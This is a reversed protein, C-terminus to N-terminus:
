VPASMYDQTSVSIYGLDHGYGSNSLAWQDGYCSFCQKDELNAREGIETANIIKM